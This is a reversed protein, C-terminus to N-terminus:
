IRSVLDLDELSKATGDNGEQGCDRVDNVNPVSTSVRIVRPLQLKSCKSTPVDETTFHPPQTFRFITPTPSSPMSTSAKEDQSVDLKAIAIGKFNRINDVSTM